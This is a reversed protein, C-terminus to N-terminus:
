GVLVDENPYHLKNKDNDTSLFSIAITVPGLRGIFMCVIIIVKGLPSLYPTIGTTSGVTGLASAAEFFLDLFEYDYGTNVETLSLLTSAVILISTLMITVTLAKQLAKFSISRKFAYISDKDQLLSIVALFIVTVSVTKIGGATGCPSGGIMMLLISAFETPQRLGGYDFSVFGATRLVVSNFLSSLLKGHLSYSGITTPNSYEFVFTIVTGAIILVASTVLVLKTHLSLFKLKFAIGKKKSKFLGLLEVWVPFGLGGTIVLLIVTINVAYSEAYPIMSSDGLIDFGANCFASISHFIGMGFAKLPPYDPLFCFTLIIAGILESAFTFRALFTVFGPIGNSKNINLAEKIVIREKLTIRQGAILLVTTMLTIFGLGGIQILLLIVIKGFLSWHEATNLTVLGTVCSASTSTFLCDLLPTVEHKASSIPLCLIFSGILIMVIFGFVLIQTPTLGTKIKNM